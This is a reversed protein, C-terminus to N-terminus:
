HLWYRWTRWDLLYIVKGGEKKTLMMAKKTAISQFPYVSVCSLTVENPFSLGYPWLIEWQKTSCNGRVSLSWDRQKGRCQLVHWVYYINWLVPATRSLEIPAKKKIIVLWGHCSTPPERHITQHIKASTATIHSSEDTGFQWMDGVKVKLKKSSPGEAQRGVEITCAGLCRFSHSQATNHRQRLM